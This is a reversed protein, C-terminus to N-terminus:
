CSQIVKMANLDIASIKMGLAAGTDMMIINNELKIPANEGYYQVPTHGVVFTLDGEYVDLFEERIWLYNEYAQNYVDFQPNIGAHVFFYGEMKDFYVPLEEVFRILNSVEKEDIQKLQGVTVDGGNNPMLWIDNLNDKISFKTFYKTMFDEHNGKLAVINKNTEALNKIFKLCDVSKKGRDIYDGLFIAFDEKDNFNIKNWLDVLKDYQGHIDGIAFVRKYESLKM